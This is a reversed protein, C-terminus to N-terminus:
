MISGHVSIILLGVCSFMLLSGSRFSYLAAVARTWVKLKVKIKIKVRVKVKITVKM